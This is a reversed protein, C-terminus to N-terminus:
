ECNLNIMEEIQFLFIYYHLINFEFYLYIILIFFYEFLSFTSLDLFIVIKKSVLFKSKIM